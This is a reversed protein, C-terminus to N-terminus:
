LRIDVIDWLNHLPPVLLYMEKQHLRFDETFGGICGWVGLYSLQHRCLNSMMIPANLALLTWDVSAVQKGEDKM